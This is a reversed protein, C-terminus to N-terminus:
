AWCDDLLVIDFLKNVHLELATRRESAKTLGLHPALGLNMSM